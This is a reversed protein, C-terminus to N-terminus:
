RKYRNKFVDESFIGLMMFIHYLIYIGEFVAVGLFLYSLSYDTGHVQYGTEINGTTVNTMQYPIEINMIAASLSLFCILSIGITVIHWYDHTGELAIGLLLFLIGVVLLLAFTLEYMKKDEGL